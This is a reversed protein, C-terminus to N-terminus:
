EFSNNISFLLIYISILLLSINRRLVSYVIIAIFFFLSVANFIRDSVSLNFYKNLILKLARGGDLPYLPLINILALAFNIDRYINFVFLLINVGAGSFLFILEQNFTFSHRYKLGIGYFALNIELPKGKFAILAILHACEHISSFLLIYLINNNGILLSFAIILFLSYEIKVRTKNIYFTM